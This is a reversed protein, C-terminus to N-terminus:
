RAGEADNSRRWEHWRWYGVFAALAGAAASVLGIVAFFPLKGVIPDSGGYGAIMFALGLVFGYVAGAPLAERRTRCLAGVSLAGLGWPVLTAWQLFLLKSGAFGLVLGLIAAGITRITM